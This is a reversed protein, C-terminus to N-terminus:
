VTTLQRKHALGLASIMGSPNAMNKWAINEATGHGPSTRFFPLGLTINVATDPYLTKMPILGQDHYMALVADYHKWTQHAFFADASFPGDVPFGQQRLDMLAPQIVDIEEKGLAGQEGAHPNLGLVAISPSTVRCLQQLHHHITKVCFLLRDRNLKQSVVNLPIHTTALGVRLSTGREGESSTDASFFMVTNTVGFAQALYETHGVFDPDIRQLRHKNVPATVLADIKKAKIDAIAQDLADLAMVAAADECMEPRTQQELLHHDGYIRFQARIDPAFHQLAKATVEPGIGLPDGLTIGITM